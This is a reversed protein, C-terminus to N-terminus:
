KASSMCHLVIGDVISVSRVCHKISVLSGGAISLLGLPSFFEVCSCIEGFPITVSDGTSTM